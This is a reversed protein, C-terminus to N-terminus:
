SLSKVYDVVEKVHTAPKVNEFIQIIKHNTNLVFTNRMFGQYERGMFKKLGYSNYSRGVDGDADTLLPFSLNHKKTFKTKSKEDGGSIGIITTDLKTFESLKANFNNAEITCGPTNDRPYFYVISYKTKIDHLKLLEGDKNPLVFEPATDGIHLKM